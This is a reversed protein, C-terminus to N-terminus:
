QHQRRQHRRLVRPVRRQRSDKRETNHRKDVIPTLKFSVWLAHHTEFAELFDNLVQDEGKRGSEADPHHSPNFRIRIEELDVFGNQSKKTLDDYAREVIMERNEPMRGRLIKLFQDSSIQQEDNRDFYEFVIHM